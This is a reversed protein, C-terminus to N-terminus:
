SFRFRTDVTSHSLLISAPLARGFRRASGHGRGGRTAFHYRIIDTAIAGAEHRAGLIHGRM